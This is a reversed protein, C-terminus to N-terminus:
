TAAYGQSIKEILKEENEANLPFPPENSIDIEYSIKLIGPPLSDGKFSKSTMHPFNNEVDYIRDEVIRFKFNEAFNIIDVSFGAGALLTFFLEKEVSNKLIDGIIDKISIGEMTSELKIYLVFLSNGPLPELQDYGNIEIFRGYRRKSTKVEISIGPAMFDHRAKLPGKWYELTNPNSKVLKLLLNLEGFLGIIQHESIKEQFGKEILERWRSLTKVCIDNSNNLDPNLGDFIEGILINFLDNLDPKLCVVDIFKRRGKIDDLIREYIQVGASKNDTIVPSQMQVSIFLHRYNNADVAFFVSDKLWRADDIVRVLFDEKTDPQEKLLHWGFTVLRLNDFIMDIPVNLNM